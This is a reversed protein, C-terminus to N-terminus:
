KSLVLGIIAIGVIAVIGTVIKLMWDRSLKLTPMQEEINRLRADSKEHKTECDKRNDEISKFARQLADRTEGHHIELKTLTQLSEDISKMADRIEGVSGELATVRHEIMNDASM